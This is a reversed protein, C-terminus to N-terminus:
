MRDRLLYWAVGLWEHAVKHCYSLAWPKPVFDSFRGEYNQARYRCGWPVVELGQKRFSGVARIAEQRPLKLEVHVLFSIGFSLFWDCHYLDIWFGAVEILGVTALL